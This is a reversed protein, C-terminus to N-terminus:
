RHGEEYLEGILELIERQSVSKNLMSRIKGGGPFGKTYHCFHTRMEKLAQEKNKLKLALETHAKIIEYRKQYSLELKKGTLLYTKIENFLWPHGLAGRGIMLSACGTIELMRVADAVNTVDGNGVVPIKLASVVESIVSWDSKGSYLQSRTRPHVILIDAGADEMALSFEVAVINNQDWGSRIKVTLPLDTDQLERKVGKVIEVALPIDKLLASGAGRNVVKKVPCGMNIDIFDPKLSLILRCAQVMTEPKSGFLQIGLPREAATFLAYRLSREYDMVLGDASVMESVVVDAGNQKCIIRFARDTLGALPALWIKGSTLEGIKNM